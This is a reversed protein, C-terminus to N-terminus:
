GNIASVLGSAFDYVEEDYGSEGMDKAKSKMKHQTLANKGNMAPPKRSHEIENVSSVKDATFGFVEEDMKRESVDPKQHKQHKKHHKHESFASGEFASPDSGNPIFPLQSKVRTNM